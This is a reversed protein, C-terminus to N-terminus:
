SQLCVGRNETQRAKCMSYFCHVLQVIVGYILKGEGEESRRSGDSTTSNRTSKNNSGFLLRVEKTKNQKNGKKSIDQYSQKLHGNSLPGESEGTIRSQEPQHNCGRERPGWDEGSGKSGRPSAAHLQHHRHSLDGGWPPHLWPHGERGTAKQGREGCSEYCAAPSGISGIPKQLCVRSLRVSM